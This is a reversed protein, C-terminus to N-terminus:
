TGVPDIIFSMSDSQPSAATDTVTVTVTVRFRGEM